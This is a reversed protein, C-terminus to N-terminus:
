SRESEHRRDLSLPSRDRVLEELSGKLIENQHLILVVLRDRSFANAPPEENSFVVVHPRKFYKFGSQYKSSFIRGNKLQEMFGYLYENAGSSRALDFFVVPERNYAYSIDNLRGGFFCVARHRAMFMNCFTSKGAGGEFDVYWYIHRAHPHTATLLDYLQTQWRFLILHDDGHQRQFAELGLADRINRVCNDVYLTHKAYAEAYKDDSDLLSQLTPGGHKQSSEAVRRALQQAVVYSTNTGPNAAPSGVELLM